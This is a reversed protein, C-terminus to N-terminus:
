AENEYCMKWINLKSSRGPRQARGIVQSELEKNMSHYIIVDTANELNLGAGCYNSNLLLLDISNQETSKFKNITSNITTNSGMVKSNRISNNILHPTIESFIHEHETFLLVKSNKKVLLDLLLKKLNNIKSDLEDIKSHQQLQEDVVIILNDQNIQNRCYPCTTKQKLCMTICEFCFTNNCCKTIVKHTPEDYCIPCCKNEVLRNKILQIKYDIEKLDETIKKLSIEKAEVSSFTMKSKMDLEIEKNTKDIELKNTVASALNNNTIKECNFKNIASNIDGANILGIISDDVINKLINYNINNKCLITNITPEELQFSQRIFNDNNKLYIINNIKHKYSFSLGFIEQFDNYIFSKSIGNIFGRTTFGSNYDYHFSTEHNNINYYVRQSNPCQLNKFSSTIYWKFHCPFMTYIKPTFKISDAEDVIVRLIKHSKWYFIDNHYTKNMFESLRTSSIIILTKNQFIQETKEITDYEQLDKKVIIATYDIKTFNDIYSIWQKIITHPVILLNCKFTTIGVKKYIISINESSSIIKPPIDKNELNNTGSSILSLVSLSKGSGVSDAVIGINTKFDMIDDNDLENLNFTEKTELEKMCKLLALQHNKLPLTINSPQETKENNDTIENFNYSLM